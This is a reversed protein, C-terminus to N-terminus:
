IGAHESQFLIISWMMCFLRIVIQMHNFPKYTICYLSLQTFLHQTSPIHPSLAWMLATGGRCDTGSLSEVAAGCGGWPLLRGLPTLGEARAFM